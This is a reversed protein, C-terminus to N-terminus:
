GKAELCVSRGQSGERSGQDRRRGVDQEVVPQTFVAVRPGTLCLFQQWGPSCTVLVGAVMLRYFFFVRYLFVSLCSGRSDDDVMQAM